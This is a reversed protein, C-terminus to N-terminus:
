DNGKQELTRALEDRHEPSMAALAKEGVLERLRADRPESRAALEGRMLASAERYAVAARAFEKHVARLEDTPIAKLAEPTVEELKM